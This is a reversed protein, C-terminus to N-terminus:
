RREGERVKERGREGERARERGREARSVSEDPEVSRSAPSILLDSKVSRLAMSCRASLFCVRETKWSSVSVLSRAEESSPCTRARARARCARGEGGRRERLEAGSSMPVRDISSSFVFSPSPIVSRLLGSLMPTTTHDTSGPLAASATRGSM